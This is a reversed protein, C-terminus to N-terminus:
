DPRAMWRIIAMAPFVWGLGAIAFFLILVWWVQDMLFAEYVIVALISYVILSFVTLLTGILKRTSQTM